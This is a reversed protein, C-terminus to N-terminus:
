YYSPTKQIFLALVFYQFGLIIRMEQATLEYRVKMDQDVKDWFGNNKEMMQSLSVNDDLTTLECWISIILM